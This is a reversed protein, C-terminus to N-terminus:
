DRDTTRFLAYVNVEDSAIDQSYGDVKTPSRSGAGGTSVGHRNRWITAQKLYYQAVQSLDERRPGVAINVEDSWEAALTEFAAAIARQWTGEVSILGSLEEDTYNNAGPRPGNNLSRDAIYFRVKDLDSALTGTYTFTM